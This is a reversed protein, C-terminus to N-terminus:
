LAMAHHCPINQVKAKMQEARIGSFGLKLGKEWKERAAKSLADKVLVYARIWRSYTWPMHIQGWTSNDKKRFLWMGNSDQDDVLAEGGKSIVELLKKDHYYPNASDKLSWAAALPLLVEQDRCIWPDTGFRGTDPHYTKLAAEVSKVLAKMLYNRPPWTKWDDSGGPAPRLYPVILLCMIPLITKTLRKRSTRAM